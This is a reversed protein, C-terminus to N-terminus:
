PLSERIRKFVEEASVSAARGALHEQYRRDIEDFWAQECNEDRETDLSDILFLALEGREEDTLSVLQAKLKEATPSM